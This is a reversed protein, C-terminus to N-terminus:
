GGRRAAGLRRMLQQVLDNQMDRYLLAEEQEKGLVQSDDFTYERRASLSTPPILAKGARDLLQFRLAQVLQYERVKGAGTLSLIERGRDNALIQLRAEARAADEEVRTTGTTAILRRLQAGFESQEPVNIHVTAFDLAQPGRLHFGCGSLLAVTAALASGLLRRRGTAAPGPATM